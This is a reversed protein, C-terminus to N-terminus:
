RGTADRYNDRGWGLTGLWELEIDDEVRLQPCVHKSDGSIRRWGHSEGCKTCFVYDIEYDDM